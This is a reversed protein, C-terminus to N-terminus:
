QNRIQAMREAVLHNVSRAVDLCLEREKKAIEPAAAAVFANALKILDEQIFNYDGELPTNVFTDVVQEKSLEM